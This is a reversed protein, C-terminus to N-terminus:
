TNENRHGQVEKHEEPDQLFTWSFIKPLFVFIKRVSMEWWRNKLKIEVGDHTM